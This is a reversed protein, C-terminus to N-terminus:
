QPLVKDLNHLFNLLKVYNRNKGQISHDRSGLIWTNRVSDLDKMLIILMESFLWNQVETRGTVSRRPLDLTLSKWIVKRFICINFVLIMSFYKSWIILKRKRMNKTWQMELLLQPLLPLSSYLLIGYDYLYLLVSLYSM